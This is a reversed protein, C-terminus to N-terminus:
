FVLLQQLEAFGLVVDNGARPWVVHSCDKRSGLGDLCLILLLLRWGSMIPAHATLPQILCRPLEANENKVRSM